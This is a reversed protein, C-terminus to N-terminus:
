YINMLLKQSSVKFFVEKAKEPFDATDVLIVMGHLKNLQQLFLTRRTTSLFM